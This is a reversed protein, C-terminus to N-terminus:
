SGPMVVALVVNAGTDFVMSVFGRDITNALEHAETQDDFMRAKEPVETLSEGDPAIFKGNGNCVVFGLYKTHTPLDGNVMIDLPDVLGDEYAEEATDFPEPNEIILLSGDERKKVSALIGEESLKAIEEKTKEVDDPHLKSLPVNAKHVLLGWEASSLKRGFQVRGIRSQTVSHKKLAEKKKKSQRKQQKSRKATM